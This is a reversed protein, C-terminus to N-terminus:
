EAGSTGRGGFKFMGLRLLQRFIDRRQDPSLGLWPRPPRGNGGYHIYRGLLNWQPSRNGTRVAKGRQRSVGYRETERASARALAQRKKYAASGGSEGKARAVQSAKAAPTSVEASTGAGSGFTLTLVNGSLDKQLRKVSGMLGGTLRLDVNQAEGMAALKAKWEPSYDALPNGHIDLGAQVRQRIAGPVIASLFDAIKPWNPTPKGSAGVFTISSAM